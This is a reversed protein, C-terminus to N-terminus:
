TMVADDDQWTREMWQSELYGPLEAYAIETPYGPWEGSELCQQWKVLAYDLKRVALDYADPALSIVSLAYPPETEVIILRFAPRVGTLRYVGRVYMAAQLDAGIDWLRTRAWQAPDASGSTTKLDDIATYDDRLWDPRARCWVGGIDQWILTREPKGKTLLPPSVHRAAIQRVAADVMANVQEWDKELLPIKGAKRAARRADQSDKTRWSDFGLVQVIDRGELLMAHAATGVDFKHADVRKRDPNLQPHAAFAHAPSRTCLLHAISKTLSPKPAPDAHYRSAAVADYIGPETIM